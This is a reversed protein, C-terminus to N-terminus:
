WTGRVRGCSGSSCRTASGTGAAEISTREARARAAVDVREVTISVGLNGALDRCFQEDEDAAAGRLRHNVHLLGDVSWSTDSAMECLLAALAVSDGGGSCAVLVRSGSPILAEREISQLVRQALSPM